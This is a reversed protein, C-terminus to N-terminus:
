RNSLTNLMGMLESDPDLFGDIASFHNKGALPKYNGALGKATWALHYDNSQRLFEAPEEGGVTMMLPPASDPIHFQPSQQQIVDHTLLVKPQLWSYRLPRLDFLGSISLGGKIIDAPLGYENEWDTNLLMATQHGGASHGSVYIQERNGSFGMDTRYLWALAARSQRTIESITVKPCLSYNTVVVTYGAAVPGHAVLSFEKSSLVRWYGGHVFVLIPANPDAAPFIDVTEELTPGFQVDLHCNLEARARASENIYLDRYIGFDPVSLEVNYNKDIEEQTSFERYLNM